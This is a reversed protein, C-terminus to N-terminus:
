SCARKKNALDVVTEISFCTTGASGDALRAKDRGPGGDLDNNV